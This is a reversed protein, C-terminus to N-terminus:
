EAHMRDILDSNVVLEVGADIGTETNKYCWIRIPDAELDLTSYRNLIAAIDKIDPMMNTDIEAWRGEEFQVDWYSHAKGGLSMMGFHVYKFGDRRKIIHNFAPDLLQEMVYSNLVDFAAEFGEFTGLDDALGM